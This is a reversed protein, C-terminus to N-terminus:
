KKKIDSQLFSSIEELQVRVKYLTKKLRDPHINETSKIGFEEEIKRKAGALTYSRIELLEKIRLIIKVDKERFIKTGTATTGANLFPFEKEWANIVHPDLKTIRSVEELKYVLKVPTIESKM